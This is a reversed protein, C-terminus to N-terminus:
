FQEHPALKAERCFWRFFSVLIAGMYILGGPIWMLLGGLEQDARPTLQWGERIVTLIRLTDEPTLYPTYIVSPWSAILIGLLTNLLGAPMLYLLVIPPSLRKETLPTLVPWWFIVSSVLFCLHEGIHIDESGLAALFLFVGVLEIGM